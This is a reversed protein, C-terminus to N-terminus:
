ADSIQEFSSVNVAPMPSGSCYFAPPEYFALLVEMLDTKALFSIPAQEFSTFRETKIIWSEAGSSQECNSLQL